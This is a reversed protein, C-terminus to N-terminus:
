PRPRHLSQSQRRVERGTRPASARWRAVTAAGLGRSVTLYRGRQGGEEPNLRGSLRARGDRARRVWPQGLGVATLWSRCNGLLLFNEMLRSTRTMLAATAVADGNAGVLFVARTLASVKLLSLRRPRVSFVPPGAWVVPPLVPLRPLVMPLLVPPRPPLLPPLM